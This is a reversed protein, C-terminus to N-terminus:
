KISQCIDLKGKVQKIYSWADNKYDESVKKTKFDRPYIEAELLKNSKEGLSYTLDEGDSVTIIEQLIYYSADPPILTTQYREALGSQS